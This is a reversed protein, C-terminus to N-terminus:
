TLRRIGSGLDPPIAPHVHRENKRSINRLISIGMVVEGDIAQFLVSSFPIRFESFWGREDRM